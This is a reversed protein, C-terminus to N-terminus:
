ACRGSCLVGRRQRIIRDPLDPNIHYGHPLTLAQEIIRFQNMEEVRVYRDM